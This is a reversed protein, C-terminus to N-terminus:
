EAEWEVRIGLQELGEVIRKNLAEDTIGADSKADITVSLTTTADQEQLVKFLYLQLNSTKAISLHDIKLRVRTHRVVPVPIHTPPQGPGHPKEVSGPPQPPEPPTEVPTGGLEMRILDRVDGKVLSASGDFMSTVGDLEDPTEVLQVYKGTVNDGIAVAWLKEKIGERVCARLSEERRPLIPLYTWQRFRTSLEKLDAASTEDKWLHPALKANFYVASIKDMVKPNVAEDQSSLRKVTRGVIREDKTAPMPLAVVALGDADPHLVWRYATVISTRLSEKKDKSRSRLDQLELDSVDMSKKSAKDIVQEYAMVERMVEEAKAFEDRDPAVLVLSNRWQRFGGGAKEWLQDIRERGALKGDGNEQAVAYRPELVALTPEPSDAIAGEEGAWQLVRFGDATGTAGDAAERLREVVAADPQQDATQQIVRYINARTEFRLLDGDKHVYWLSEELSNLVETVYEPGINPAVTGIRLEWPVAGRRTAGGFSHMLLTTALGRAVHHREYENGRRQDQQDAHADGGIIDAAVVPIYNEGAERGATVIRTRIRERELNVHASQITYAERRNVWQDAVINALLQLVARTRPFEAATSWKKYLVDILETHLPYAAVQQQLYDASLITPDYLAQTRVYAEHYMKAAFSAAEPDARQFLRKSMLTYIEDDNVPTRKSVVRDARPKLEDLVGLERQLEKPDIGGFETRSKPLSMLVCVGKTNGAEQLAEQLFQVTQHYLNQTRKANSFRLKVLYSVLEDILILCPSASELVQRFLQNGPAEGGSDTHELLRHYTRGEDIQFALEGWMTSVTAGNQKTWPESGYEHGDFVLVKANPPIQVDGLAERVGPVALSEAPSKILHYLSLLAHTKGGGFPTQMETVSAGDGGAMRSAVDGITLKLNETFYTHSFFIDPKMYEDRASGAHVGGLTAAFISEDIHAPNKFADHPECVQWWYPLEGAGAPKVDRASKADETTAVTAATLGLVEKRLADVEAAQPLKAAALAQAMNYLYNGVEDTLLDGTRQHAWEDRASGAQLLWSQTKKFDPFCGAFAHDFQKSIIRVFHPPDIVDVKPKDPNKEIGKRINARQQDTLQKMVGDEWWTNPFRAILHEQIFHRMADTYLKLGKGLADYNSEIAM